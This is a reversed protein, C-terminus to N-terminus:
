FEIVIDEDNSEDVNTDEEFDIMLDDADDVGIEIEENSDATNEDIDILQSYDIAVGEVYNVIGKPEAYERVWKAIVADEPYPDREEALYNKWQLIEGLRLILDDLGYHASISKSNVCVRGVMPGHRQINPHWIDTTMTLMPPDTAAPYAPPLFIEAKHENGYIPANEKDINVISKFNYTIEYRIALGKRNRDKIKYSIKSARSCIEKVLEEDLARRRSKPDRYKKLIDKKINDDM